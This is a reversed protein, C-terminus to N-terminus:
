KSGLRYVKRYPEKLKDKKRYPEPKAPSSRRVNLPAAFAAATQIRFTFFPFSMTKPSPRTVLRAKLLKWNVEFHRPAMIRQYTFIRKKYYDSDKLYDPIVIRIWSGYPVLYHIDTNVQENVRVFGCRVFYHAIEYNKVLGARLLFFSLRSELILGLNNTMNLWKMYKARALFKRYQYEKSYGLYFKFRISQCSLTSSRSRRRLVRSMDKPRDFAPYPDRHKLIQSIRSRWWLFHRKYSLPKLRPSLEKRRSRVVDFSKKVDRVFRPKLYLREVLGDYKINSTSVGWIDFDYKTCLQARKIVRISPM